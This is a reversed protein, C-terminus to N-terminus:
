STFSEHNSIQSLTDSVAKQLAAPAFPKAVCVWNPDLAVADTPIWGSVIVVALAPYRRSLTRALDLGTCGSLVVDAILIDAAPDTSSELSELLEEASSFATVQIKQQEVLHVLLERVSPDDEVIWARCGELGIGNDTGLAGQLVPIEVEFRTGVGDKGSCTRIRAQHARAVRSVVALGLGTGSGEPKTSFFPEWVRGALEEPIGPGDDEVVILVGVPREQTAMVLVQINGGEYLLADRANLILNIVLQELEKRHGVLTPLGSDCQMTLQVNQPMMISVLDVTDAVVEEVNMRVPQESVGRSAMMLRNSLQAAALVIAEMHEFRSDTDATGTKVTERLMSLHGMLATLTNNLDHAIAGALGSVM